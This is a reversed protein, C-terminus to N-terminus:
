RAPLGREGLDICGGSLVVAGSDRAANTFEALLRTKGVGAEGSVLFKQSEGLRAADAAAGLRGLEDSRGIFVPSSVRVDMAANDPGRTVLPSGEQDQDPFPSAGPVLVTM